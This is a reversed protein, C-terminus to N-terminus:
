RTHVSNRGTFLGKPACKRTRHGTARTRVALGAVRTVLTPAMAGLTALLALGLQLLLPLQAPLAIRHLIRILQLWPQGLHAICIKARRAVRESFGYVCVQCETM